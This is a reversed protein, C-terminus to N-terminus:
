ECASSAGREATVAVTGDFTFAVDGSTLTDYLAASSAFACWSGACTGPREPEGSGFGCMVDHCSAPALTGLGVVRELVACRPHKFGGHHGASVVAYAPSVATLWEVSSSTVSTGHHGLRVLDADLLEPTSAYATLM